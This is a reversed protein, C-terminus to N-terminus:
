TLHFPAQFSCGYLESALFYTNKNDLKQGDLETQFINCTFKTTM